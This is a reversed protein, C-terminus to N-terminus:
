IITAYTLVSQQLNNCRPPLQQMRKCVLVLVSEVVGLMRPGVINRTTADKLVYSAQTVLSGSGRNQLKRSFLSESITRIM